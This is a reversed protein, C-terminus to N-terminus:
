GRDTYRPADHWTTHGAHRGALPTDGQDPDTPVLMGNQEVWNSQLYKIHLPDDPQRNNLAEIAPEAAIGRIVALEEIVDIFVDWDQRGLPLGSVGGPYGLHQGAGGYPFDGKEVLDHRTEALSSDTWQGTLQFYRLVFALKGGINAGLGGAVDMQVGPTTLVHMVHALPNRWDHRERNDLVIVGVSVNSGYRDQLAPMRTGEWWERLKRDADTGFRM